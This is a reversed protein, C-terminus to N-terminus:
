VLGPGTTESFSKVIMGMAPKTASGLFATIEEAAVPFAGVFLGAILLVIVLHTNNKM